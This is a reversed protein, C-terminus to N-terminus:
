SSAGGANRYGYRRKLDQKREEAAAVYTGDASALIAGDAEDVLQAATRFVRRRAEVIWGEAHLPRELPVPRRFAVGLRATVGWTDQDVLSWAMVEDLITSVIGGHAIDHWGQFRQPIVLNAWCTGGDVHLDLQLGSTNLTGCAFCHHPEFAFRSRVRTTM